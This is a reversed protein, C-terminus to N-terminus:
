SPPEPPSTLGHAKASSSTKRSASTSKSRPSSRPPRDASQQHPRLGCTANVPAARARRARRSARSSTARSANTLVAASGSAPRPSRYFLRRRSRARRRRLKADRVCTTGRPAKAAEPTGGVREAARAALRRRAPLWFTHSHDDTWRPARGRVATATRDWAWTTCEKLFESPSGHTAPPQPAHKQPREREVPSFTNAVRYRRFSELPLASM